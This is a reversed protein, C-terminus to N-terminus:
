NNQLFIIQGSVFQHSTMVQLWDTTFITDFMEANSSAHFHYGETAEEVLDKSRTTKYIVKTVRLLPASQSTLHPNVGWCKQNAYLAADQARWVQSAIMWRNFVARSLTAQTLIILSPHKPAKDHRSEGCKTVWVEFFESIFTNKQETLSLLSPILWVFM